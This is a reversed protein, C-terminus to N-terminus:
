DNSMTNTSLSELFELTLFIVDAPIFKPFQDIILRTEEMGVDEMYIMKEKHVNTFPYARMIKGRVSIIFESTQDGHYTSVRNQRLVTDLNPVIYQTHDISRLEQFMALQDNTVYQSDDFQTMILELSDHDVELQLRIAIEYITYLLIRVNTQGMVWAFRLSEFWQLEDRNMLPSQFDILTRLTRMVDDYIDIPKLNRIEKSENM